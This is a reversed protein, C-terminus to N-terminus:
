DDGILEDYIKLTQKNIINVSFKTKALLYSKKGMEKRLSANNILTEIKEALLNINRVPVLFGNIGDDVVDRCGVTNTTVIPLGMAAGELLAKPLGERYSPLCLIDTDFLIEDINDVWGLWKVIEQDHWKELTKIDISTPNLPDNDGVLIFKGKIIESNIIRAASVFEFVGKDKLMRAILTVNPLKNKKNNSNLEKVEVGAGRIVHADNKNLAGKMLFYNLDDNNEFIVKNKKDKGKHSNLLKKYSFNLIVKLIKAKIEKSSFVYGMGVPANIVSKINCIRAAISGLIIPKSAIQHVIDPNIDKYTKILKFLIFLEYLPNLNRRNYPIHIFKFGFKEIDIKNNNKNACVIIKYGSKKAELARNLFHSCFFWDETINYLLKRKM